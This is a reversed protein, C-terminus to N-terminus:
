KNEDLIESVAEDIEPTNLDEKGKNKFRDMLEPVMDLVKTITDQNKVHVLKTTGNQLILVACPTMKGGLGGVGRDKKRDNNFAGAGIGFSVDMLPLITTDGAYIPDGVVTKSTIVSDMGEFIAEITGKFNNEAM